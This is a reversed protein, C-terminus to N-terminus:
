SSGDSSFMDADSEFYESGSSGFDDIDMFRVQAALREKEKRAEEEKDLRALESKLAKIHNKLRIKPTIATGNRNFSYVDRRRVHYSDVVLSMTLRQRPGPPRRIPESVDPFSISQLRTTKWIYFDYLADSLVCGCHMVRVGDRMPFFEWVRQLTFNPNPVAMSDNPGRRLYNVRRLPQTDYPFPVGTVLDKPTSSPMADVDIANSPSDGADVDIPHSEDGSVPPAEDDVLLPEDDSDEQQHLASDNTRSKRDQNTHYHCQTRGTNLIFMSTSFLESHTAGEVFFDACRRTWM